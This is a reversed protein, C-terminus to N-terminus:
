YERTVDIGRKRLVMGINHDALNIWSMVDVAL